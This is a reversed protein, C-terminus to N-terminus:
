AAASARASGLRDKQTKLSQVLDAVSDLDAEKAIPELRTQILYAEDDDFVLGAVGQVLERVFHYDAPDM